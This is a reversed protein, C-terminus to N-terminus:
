HEICQLFYAGFVTLAFVYYSLMVGDAGSKEGGGTTTVSKGDGNTTVSGGGGTTTISGRVGTTTVSGGGGTAAVPTSTTNRPSGTAAPSTM